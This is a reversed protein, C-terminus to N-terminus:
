ESRLHPVGGWGSRLHLVGEVWVQSTTGGGGRLHPCVSFIVKGGESPPRYCATKYNMVQPGLPVITMRGSHPEDSHLAFIHVAEQLVIRLGRTSVIQSAFWQVLLSFYRALFGKIKWGFTWWTDWTQVPPPIKLDEFGVDFTVILYIESAFHPSTRLYEFIFDFNEM